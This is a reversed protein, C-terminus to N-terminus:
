WKESRRTYKQLLSQNVQVGIGPATPVTLTSDHNLTFLPYAIDEHYYRDSASIDGPLTFNPLTALHINTARGVGTELMGGCWMQIGAQQALDHIAMATTIGGVRGVKMNIIRCARLDIAAQTAAVSHISEDLCIPSAIQAQLRAHDAIDDHGLPQEIMLLNLDDMAKFLDVDNLTFASNADAMLLVNPHNQRVARLQALEWGPEIKIKIRAYGAQVFGDVDKLLKELTPQIGISVGVAVREKAVTQQHNLVASLPLGLSQAYLDWCANELATKAMEHGRISHLAQFIEQPHSFSKGVMRPIAFQTLIHWATDIDEYSYWPGDGTVCEGWGVWGGAYVAVLLCPRDKEIGFSTQFPSILPMVVHSLEIREITLM